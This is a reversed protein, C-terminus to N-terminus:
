IANQGVNSEVTVEVMRELMRGAIPISEGAQVINARGIGAIRQVVAQDTSQTQFIAETIAAYRRNVIGVTSM